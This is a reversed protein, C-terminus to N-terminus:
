KTSMEIKRGKTRIHGGSTKRRFKDQDILAIDIKLMPIIVTLGVRVNPTIERFGVDDGEYQFNAQVILVFYGLSSNRNRNM